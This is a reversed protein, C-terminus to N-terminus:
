KFIISHVPHLEWATNSQVDKCKATASRHQYDYFLSGKIEIPISLIYQSTGCSKQTKFFDVAKKRVATLQANDKMFNVPLGSIEANFIYKAKTYDAKNGILMHYDKDDEHKFVYLWATKVVVNQKEPECRPSTQGLNYQLMENNSPLNTVLWKLSRQKFAGTTFTTKAEERVGGGQGNRFRETAPDDTATAALATTTLGAAAMPLEEDTDSENTVAVKKLYYIKTNPAKFAVLNTTAEEQLTTVTDVPGSKDFGFTSSKTTGCNFFVIVLSLIFIFPLDKKM